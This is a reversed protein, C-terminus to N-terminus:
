PSRRNRASIMFYDLLGQRAAVLWNRSPGYEEENRKSASAIWVIL